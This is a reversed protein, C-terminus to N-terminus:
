RAGAATDRQRPDRASTRALLHLYDGMAALLEPGFASFPAPGAPLMAFLGDNVARAAAYSLTWPHASAARRACRQDESWGPILQEAHDWGCRYCWTVPMAVVEDEGERHAGAAHLPSEATV